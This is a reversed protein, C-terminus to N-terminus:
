REAWRHDPMRELAAEILPRTVADGGPPTCEGADFGLYIDWAFDPVRGECNEIMISFFNNAVNDGDVWFLKGLLYLHALYAAFHNCASRVAEPQAGDSLAFDDM